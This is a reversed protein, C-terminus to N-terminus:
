MARYTKDYVKAVEPGWTISGMPLLRERVRAHRGGTKEGTGPRARARLPKGRGPGARRPTVGGCRSVSRTRREAPPRVGVRRDPRGVVTEQRRSLEEPDPREPHRRPPGPATARNGGPRM